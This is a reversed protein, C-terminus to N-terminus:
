CVHLRKITNGIKTVLCHWFMFPQAKYDLVLHYGWKNIPAFPSSCQAIFNFSCRFLGFMITSQPLNDKNSEKHKLPWVLM